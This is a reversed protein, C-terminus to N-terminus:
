KPTPRCKRDTSSFWPMQKSARKPALRAADSRGSIPQEQCLYVLLHYPIILTPTGRGYDWFQIRRTASVRVTLAPRYTPAQGSVCSFPLRRGQM